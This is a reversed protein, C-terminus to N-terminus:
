LAPSGAGRALRPAPQRQSRRRWVVSTGGFIGLGSLLTQEYLFLASWLLVAALVLSAALSAIGAGSSGALLASLAHGPWTTPLWDIHQAFGTLGSLDPRGTRGFTQRLSLNWALYLGAGTLGAVAAAVDRAMRAPVWRLILSMLIAQLSTITLIEVAILVVALPFYALPAGAGVGVGLVAAVLIGSILLNASMASVLRAIFIDRTRVPAVVLQLLDRGVFFSAIVTPFGVVLMLLSLGTFGAALLPDVSYALFRGVTAGITFTTGGIVVAAVVLAVVLLALRVPNRKLLRNRLATLEARVIVSLAAPESVFPEGAPSRDDRAIGTRSHAEPVSGRP